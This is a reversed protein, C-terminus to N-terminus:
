GPCTAVLNAQTAAGDRLSGANAMILARAKAPGRGDCLTFTANSGANGGNGQFVIRTRGATTRLRVKGALAPEVRLIREGGDLDRNANPDLFVIWGKSWDPTDDCNRGDQSPCLVGRVGAIAAHNSATILSALLAGRADSARSAELGSSLAPVAVGCLTGAIAVVVLLEILTWGAQAKM